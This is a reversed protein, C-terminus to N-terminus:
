FGSERIFVSVVIKYMRKIFSEAEGQIHVVGRMENEVNVKEVPSVKLRVRYISKDPILEGNNDFQAPIKGGYVSALVPLDLTKLNAFEVDEVYSWISDLQPNDPIFKASVQKKIRSLDTEPALGIIYPYEPQVITALALTPNIWRGEHLSEEMDFIVGDIPSKIIFQNQKEYLGDLKSRSEQLQQVLVQINSLEDASAAIRKAQLKLIDIEMLTTKIEYELEPSNLKMLIDGKEVKLGREMLNNEIFGPSTVYLTTKEKTEYVAPIVISSNWPYIFVAIIFMFFIATIYFRPKKIIMGRMEWWGIILKFAPLVIFWLIEILFLIIGLVKFFMYYVLVAIGIFLFFRYVAVCGAYIYLKKIMPSPLAEPPRLGLGFLFETLRWKGIEFSRKQLNQIGLLDSLIYYGDFRMLCNLNIALSMIWSTTALIFAASKLVGDPLFGWCFTAICAIYLEVVMGAAGVHVRERASKVRWTDSTDTYLIPFMVLFAVGMTPVKCGYRVATYAHGLEHFIKIFVLSFFYFVLGQLNFFYLFTSTFTDWQRGVIYLGILGILVIFSMATTSFLPEIYILTRKLFKTPKILPIKIFLYNHVLWMLLGPKSAEYQQLYDSSSGSAPDLTLSNAYLFTLLSEIDAKQIDLASENKIREILLSAKGVTWRSLLQFAMWGISFYKNRIPDVIIWSPSGDLAVPGEILQLDNRLVPLAFDDAAAESM